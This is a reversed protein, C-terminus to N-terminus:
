YAECDWVIAYITSCWVHVTHDNNKQLFCTSISMTCYRNVDLTSYDREDRFWPMWDKLLYDLMALNNKEREAESLGRGDSAKHWNSVVEVFRAESLFSNARLWKGVAPSLLKEADGVSQKRKGTLATYTLGTNPDHMAKVFAQVDVNPIHGKRLSGAIRKLVHNHDEREHQPEGTHESVEPVYLHERFNVGESCHISVKKEFLYM